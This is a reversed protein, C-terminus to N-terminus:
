QTLWWDLSDSAAVFFDSAASHKASATDRNQTWTGAPRYNPDHYVWLASSDPNSLIPASATVDYTENDITFTMRDRDISGAAMFPRGAVAETSFFFGGHGPIYFMAYRGSVPFAGAGHLPTNNMSVHLGVLRIHGSENHEDILMHITDIVKLGMGELQFLGIEAKQGSSLLGIQQESMLTPVPKGGDASSYRAAFATEAPRGTVRLRDNLLDFALEYAFVALHNQDRFIRYFSDGSARVMEVSISQQGTPLGLSTSVEIKVGNSLSITSTQAAAYAIWLLLAAGRKM